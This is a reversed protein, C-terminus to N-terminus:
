TKSKRRCPTAADQSLVTISMMLYIRCRDPPVFVNSSITIVLGAELYERGTEMDIFNIRRKKNINHQPFIDYLNPIVRYDYGPLVVNYRSIEEVSLNQRGALPHDHRTILCPKFFFAPKYVCSYPFPTHDRRPLIACDIEEEQLLKIAEEQEAFRLTVYAEPYQDIYKNLLDPMLYSKATANVSLTIETKKDEAIKEHFVDFINQFGDLHPASLKLLEEGERTLTIQPGHRKFLQVGLEDELSKIQLSVTSQTLGMHAAAKTINGFQAAYSFGRLQQLRNNKYYSKQEKTAMKMM